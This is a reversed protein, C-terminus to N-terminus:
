ATKWPQLPSATPPALAPVALVTGADFVVIDRLAPNAALLASLRTEDGWLTFAIMDWTEGATTTYTTM